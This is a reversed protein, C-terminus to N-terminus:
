TGVKVGLNKLKEELIKNNTFEKNKEKECKDNNTNCVKLSAFGSTVSERTKKSLKLRKTSFFFM